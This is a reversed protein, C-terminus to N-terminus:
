EMCLKTCIVKFFNIKLVYISAIIQIKKSSFLDFGSFMAQKRFGGIGKGRAISAKANMKQMKKCFIFSFISM